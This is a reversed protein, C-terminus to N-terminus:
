KVLHEWANCRRRTRCTFIRMMELHIRRRTQVKMGHQAQLVHESLELGGPMTPLLGLM